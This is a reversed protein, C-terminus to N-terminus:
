ISENGSTDLRACVATRQVAANACHRRKRLLLHLSLTVIVCKSPAARGISQERVPMITASLM